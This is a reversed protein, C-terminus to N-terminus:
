ENTDEDDTFIAELQKKIAERDAKYFPRPVQLVAERGRPLFMPIARFSQDSVVKNEFSPKENPPPCTVESAENESVDNNELVDSSSGQDANVFEVSSRFLSTVKSAADPTFGMEILDYKLADDSPLNENYKELLAGFIKPNKLWTKLFNDRITQEPAFKYKEFDASVFIKGDKNRGVLDYYGLAAIARGGIGGSNKYGLSKTAVDIHIPHKNEKEYLTNAREIAKELSISPFAPSRVRKKSM